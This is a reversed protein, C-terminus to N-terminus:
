KQGGYYGGSMDISDKRDGCCGIHLELDDGKSVQPGNNPCFSYTGDLWRAVLIAGMVWRYINLPVLMVCWVFIMFQVDHSNSHPVASIVMYVGIATTVSAILYSLGEGFAYEATKATAVASFLTLLGFFVILEKAYEIYLPHWPHTDLLMQALSMYAISCVVLWFTSHKFLYYLYFLTILM